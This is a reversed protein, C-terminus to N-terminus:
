SFLRRAPTPDTADLDYGAVGPVGAMGQMAMGLNGRIMLALRNAKGELSLVAGEIKEYHELEVQFLRVMEVAIGAAGAIGVCSYEDAHFVKEIDRQAIVNGMTARRDGAWVVGGPSRAAGLATPVPEVPVEDPEEPPPDEWVDEPTQELQERTSAITPIEPPDGEAAPAGATLESVRDAGQAVFIAGLAAIGMGMTVANVLGALLFGLPLWILIAVPINVQALELRGIFQFPTPLLFGLAIGVLICLFVWVTLYREFYGMSDDKAQTAITDCQASM